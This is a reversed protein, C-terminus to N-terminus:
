RFLSINLFALTLNLTSIILFVCIWKLLLFLKVPEQNQYIHVRPVRNHNDFNTFYHQYHSRTLIILNIPNKLDKKSKLYNEKSVVQHNTTAPDISSFVLFVFESIILLISSICLLKRLARIKM